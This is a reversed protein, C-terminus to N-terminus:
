NLKVFVPKRQRYFVGYRFGCRKMIDSYYEFNEGIHNETHADSGLSVADGGLEKYRKLIATDLSPTGHAFPQYTKTNIEFTKGNHALLTLIPDLIEGFEAMTITHEKYPSYRAVYDFHGLIDYGDFDKLCTLISELYRGYAEKYGYDLYYDGHYPDKDEIFHMSAIVTDFCYRGLFEKVAEMSKPQIGVEVGKLVEFELGAGLNMSRVTRGIEEQHEQPDFTFLTVNEPADFDYHETFCIGSLNIERAKEIARVMTMRGDTSFVTHTHNDTLRM